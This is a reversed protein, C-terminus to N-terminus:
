SRGSFINHVDSHKGIVDASRSLKAFVVIEDIQELFTRGIMIIRLCQATQDQGLAYNESESREPKTKVYDSESVTNEPRTWYCKGVWFPM